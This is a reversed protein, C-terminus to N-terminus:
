NITAGKRLIKAHAEELVKVSDEDPIMETLLKCVLAAAKDFSSGFLFLVDGGNAEIGITQPEDCYHVQITKCYDIEKTM